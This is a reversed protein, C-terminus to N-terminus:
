DRETVRQVEPVPAVQATSLRMMRRRLLYWLVEVLADPDEDYLATATCPAAASGDCIVLDGESTM